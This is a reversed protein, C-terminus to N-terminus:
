TGAFFLSFHADSWVFAVGDKVFVWDGPEVIVFNEEDWVSIQCRGPIQKTKTMTSVDVLEYHKNYTLANEELFELLLASTAPTHRVARVTLDLRPMFESGIM